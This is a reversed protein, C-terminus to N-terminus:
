SKALRSGRAAAYLASAGLVGYALRGTKSKRGAIAQVADFNFLSVSAWNAIGLALVAVSAEDIKNSSKALKSAQDSASEKVVGTADSLRDGLSNSKRGFM